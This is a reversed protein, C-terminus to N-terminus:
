RQVGRRERPPAVDSVALSGEQTAPGLADFIREGHRRKWRLVELQLFSVLLTNITNMVISGPDDDVLSAPSSVIHHTVRTIPSNAYSTIGVVTAGANRAIEAAQLTVPNSGSQSIVVCVDDATLSQAHMDQAVADVPAECVIGATLFRFQFLQAIMTSGGSACVLIRRARAIAEVCAELEHEDVGLFMDGTASSMTQAYRGLPTEDELRSDVSTYKQVISERILSVKLEQFGNFGLNRCTRSVTAASTGTRAALDAGSMVSVAEPDGIVEQAVRQESPILSPLLARIQAITRNAPAAASSANM